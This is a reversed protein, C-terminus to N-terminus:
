GAWPWDWAWPAGSPWPLSGAGRGEVSVGAPGVRSSSSTGEGQQRHRACGGPQHGCDGAKPRGPAPLGPSAQGGRRPLLRVQPPSSTDAQGRRRRSCVVRRGSCGLQGPSQLNSPLRGPTPHSPPKKPATTDLSATCSLPDACAPPRVSCSPVVPVPFPMPGPTSPVPSTRSGGPARPSPPQSQQPAPWAAGPQSLGAVGQPLLPPALSCRRPACLPAPTLTLFTAAPSSVSFSFPHLPKPVGVWQAAM